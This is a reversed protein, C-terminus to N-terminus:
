IKMQFIKKLEENEFNTNEDSNEKLKEEQNEENNNYTNLEM